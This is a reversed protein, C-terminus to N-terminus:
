RCPDTTPCAPGGDVGPCCLWVCKTGSPLVVTASAGNATTTDHWPHGGLVFGKKPTAVLDFTHGKECIRTGAGGGAGGGVDVLGDVVFSCSGNANLVVLEALPCGSDYGADVEGDARSSDRGADSPAASSSGCAAACAALWVAFVGGWILRGSM